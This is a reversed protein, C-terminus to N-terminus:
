RKGAFALFAGIALSVAAGLYYLMAKDSMSGSWVQKFQSGVSQAATYGFYLLALGAALLVFGALKKGSM